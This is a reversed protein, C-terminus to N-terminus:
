VPTSLCIDLTLGSSRMARVIGTGVGAHLEEKYRALLLLNYDCGVAVLIIFAIPLTLWYLEQHLLREWIFTSLGYAAAFSMIVSLLVIIAGVLARTLVMVIVFVLSFTALMMIITDNRSYDKIDRYNSAAGSMYLRASSLTTGKLSQRAAFM